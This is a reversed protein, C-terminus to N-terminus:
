FDLTDESDSDADYIPFADLAKKEEPPLSTYVADPLDYHKYLHVPPVYEDVLDINIDGFHRQVLDQYEEPTYLSKIYLMIPTLYVHGPLVRRNAMVPLAKAWHPMTKRTKGLAERLFDYFCSPMIPALPRWTLEAPLLDRIEKYTSAFVNERVFAVVHKYYVSAPYLGEIYVPYEKTCELYLKWYQGRTNRMDLIRILELICEKPDEVSTVQIALRRTKVRRLTEIETREVRLM